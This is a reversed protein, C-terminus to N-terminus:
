AGVRLGIDAARMSRFVLHTILVVVVPAITTFVAPQDTAVALAAIATIGVAVIGVASALSNAWVAALLGVLGSTAIAALIWLTVDGDPRGIVWGLAGGLSTATATSWVWPAAAPPRPVLIRYSPGFKVRSRMMDGLVAVHGKRAISGVYSASDESAFASSEIAWTMTIFMVGFAWGFTTALILTAGEDVGGLRLGTGIRIAYGLGVVLYIADHIVSRRVPYGPETPSTRIVWRLLEYPIAIVAVALMAQLAIDSWPTDLSMAIATGAAVRALMMAVTVPVALSGLGALRARSGSAPHQRDLHRDLLDNAMYRAQYVCFEIALVALLITSWSAGTYASTGAIWAALVLIPAKALLDRPRPVVLTCVGRLTM